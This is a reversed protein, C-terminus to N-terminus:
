CQIEQVSRFQVHPLMGCCSWGCHTWLDTASEGDGDLLRTDVFLCGFLALLEHDFLYFIRKSLDRGLSLMSNLTEDSLIGFTELTM